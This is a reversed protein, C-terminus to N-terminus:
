QQFRYNHAPYAGYVRIRRTFFALEEMALEVRRESPHGEIEAFFQTATFAGGLQYSELKTINIGNTAFGGMAKYLAAPVNRVEFMFSMMTPGNRPDPIADARSMIIFRTTNHTADEMNAQILDLGYIEGALSSALAGVTPDNLAAIEKAAGATDAHVIATLGLRRMTERCQDLAQVHSHVERLTALTAGKPALLQHNIRMFHEGIIHLKSHPLLQHLDAVRGAISNEIPIMGYLAQGDEVAQLADAFTACPLPTMAPFVQRCAMDSNAGLAGQFAIRTAPDSTTM